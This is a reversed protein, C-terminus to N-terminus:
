SAAALASSREDSPSEAEAEAPVGKRGYKVLLYIDAVM